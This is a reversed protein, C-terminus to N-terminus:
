KEANEVHYAHLSPAEDLNETQPSVSCREYMPNLLGRM